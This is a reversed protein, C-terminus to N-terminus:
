CSQVCHFRELGIKEWPCNLALEIKKELLTGCKLLTHEVM